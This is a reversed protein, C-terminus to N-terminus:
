VIKKEEDIKSNHVNWRNMATWFLGLSIFFRDRSASFETSKEHSNIFVQSSFFQNWKVVLAKINIVQNLLLLKLFFFKIVIQIALKMLKVCPRLHCLKQM